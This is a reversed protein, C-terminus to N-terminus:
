LCGAPSATTRTAGSRSRADRLAATEGAVRDGRGGEAAAGAGVVRVVNEGGGANEVNVRRGLDTFGYPLDPFPQSPRTALGADRGRQRRGREFGGGSSVDDGAPAVVAFQHDALLLMSALVEAPLKDQRTSEALLRATTKEEEFGADGESERGGVVDALPPTEMEVAASVSPAAAEGRFPTALFKSNASAGDDTSNKTAAAADADLLLEEKPSAKAGRYRKGDSLSARWIRELAMNLDSGDDDDIRGDAPLFSPSQKDYDHVSRANMGAEADHHFGWVRGVRDAASKGPLLRPKKAAVVDVGGEVMGMAITLTDRREPRIPADRGNRFPQQDNPDDNQDNDREPGNKKNHDNSQQDNKRQDNLLDAM